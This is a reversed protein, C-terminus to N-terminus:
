VLILNLNLPSLFSQSLVETQFGGECEGCERGDGQVSKNRRDTQMRQTM